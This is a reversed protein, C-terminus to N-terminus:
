PSHSDTLHLLSASILISRHGGVFSTMRLQMTFINKTGGGNGSQQTMQASSAVRCNSSLILPRLFLGYNINWM